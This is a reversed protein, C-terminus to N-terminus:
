IFVSWFQVMKLRLQKLQVLRWLPLDYIILFLDSSYIVLYLQYAILKYFRFWQQSHTKLLSFLQYHFLILLFHLTYLHLLRILFYPCPFFYILHFPPYIILHTSVPSFHHHLLYFNSLILDHLLNLLSLSNILFLFHYFSQRFSIISQPLLHVRYSFLYNFIFRCSILSFLCPLLKLFLLYVWCSVTYLFEPVLECIHYLCM